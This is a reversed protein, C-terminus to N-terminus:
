GYRRSATACRRRTLTRWRDIASHRSRMPKSHTSGNRRTSPMKGARRTRLMFRKVAVSFTPIGAAKAREAVPDIGIEIQQRVDAARERALKLPVKSASGLGIDRRRGDKQVRVIWSKSGGKGVVLGLGEGDWYRGPEKVKAIATATLKGM